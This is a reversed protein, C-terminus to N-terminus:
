KNTQKSPTLIPKIRCNLYKQSRLLLLSPKPHSDTHASPFSARSLNKSPFPCITLKMIFGWWVHHSGLEAALSFFLLWATNSCMRIPFNSHKSGSILDSSLWVDGYFHSSWEFSPMELKSLERDLRFLSLRLETCLSRKAKGAAHRCQRARRQKAHFLSGALEPPQSCIRRLWRLCALFVSFVCRTHM